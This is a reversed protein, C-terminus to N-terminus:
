AAISIVPVSITKIVKGSTCAAHDLKKVTQNTLFKEGCQNCIGVPVNEMIFLQDQYRYDLRDLKELVEGGCHICDGYPIM